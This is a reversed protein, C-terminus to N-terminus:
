QTAVQANIRGWGFNPHRSTANSSSNKLRDYVQQRTWGPYKAWVLAAIGAASATSVSSGGVTSPDDGEQALSLAHLENSTKEMVMVFDVKSGQHCSNCRTTMNDKIGTVAICQSLSAPFIVGVFGGTWDFSTGAAAFIMKGKNHAYVVGDTIQSASTLRGLSLSIIKVSTTNGALVFADAVGKVERSENLLVDVTARVSTFHCNYAIGAAAGDIGRPAGCAGLMSTGHGCVDDPTEAPGYPIGFISPRPLTVLKSITRGGSNGQNLTTGLNDQDPSCGTDIILVRVGSGTSSEWAQNIQHFSHNWSQKCGPTINTYDAPTTLGSAPTNSGCGSDSRDIAGFRPEYAMPEAYRVLGSARLLVITEPNRVYVDLVPLVDETFATLSAATIDPDIRRESELILNLVSQRAASWRSDNIDIEHIRARVNQEGEPQYGVSMVQDSNTLATWVQEDSAWQWEFRGETELKIRILDDLDTTAGTPVLGPAPENKRCAGVFLVLAFVLLIHNKKM